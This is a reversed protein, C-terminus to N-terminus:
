HDTPETEVIDRESFKFNQTGDMWGKLLRKMDRFLILHLYELPIDRVMDIPLEELPSTGQHHEENYQNRFSEDTRLPAYTGVLCVRGTNTRKSKPNKSSKRLYEGPEECRECAYYGNHSIICKLFARAPADLIFKDIAIDITAAVGDNSIAIGYALLEQIEDLLPRMFVEASPPKQTGKYIAVFSPEPDVGNVFCQVPWCDSAASKYIPTGDIFFTLKLTTLFRNKGCMEILKKRLGGYWYRGSGMPTTNVNKPTELLTRADIPLGRHGRGKLTRLLESLAVLPIKHKIAWKRLAFNLTKIYTFVDYDFEDADM